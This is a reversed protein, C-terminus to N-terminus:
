RHYRPLGRGRSSVRPLSPQHRCRTRHGSALAAFATRAEEETNVKGALLPGTIKSTPGLSSEGRLEELTYDTNQLPVMAAAFLQHPAANCFDAIWDNYARALAYAVHSDEVLHFGEAFWTSYLMAQDVGMADMEKLLAKPNSAGETM